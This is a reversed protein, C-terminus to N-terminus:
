LRARLVGEREIEQPLRDSILLEDGWNAMVLRGDREFELEFGFCPPFPPDPELSLCHVDILQRDILTAFPITRSINRVRLAGCEGLDVESGTGEELRLAGDGRTSIRVTISEDFTLWLFVPPEDLAALDRTEYFSGSVATLRRGRM